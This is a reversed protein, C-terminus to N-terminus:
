IVSKTDEEIVKVTDGPKVPLGASSTVKRITYTMSGNVSSATRAPIGPTRTTNALNTSGVGAGTSPSTSVIAPTFLLLIYLDAERLM